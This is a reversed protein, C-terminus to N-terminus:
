KNIFFRLELKTALYYLRQWIKVQVDFGDVTREDPFMMIGKCLLYLVQSGCCKHRLYLLDGSMVQTIQLFTLGVM